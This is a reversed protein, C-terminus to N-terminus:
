SDIQKYKNGKVLKRPKERKKGNKKTKRTKRKTTVFMKNGTNKNKKNNGPIKRSRTGLLKIRKTTVM